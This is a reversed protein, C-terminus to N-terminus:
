GAKVTLDEKNAELGHMFGDLGLSCIDGGIIKGGCVLLNLRVHRQEGPYNLLDYSYKQCRKGRWKTLDTGQQKQIENYRQYIDDFKKPIVIEVTEAPQEEVQWGLGSIFQQRQEETKAARNKIPANATASEPMINLVLKGAAIVALLLLLLLTSHRLKRGFRFSYMLM